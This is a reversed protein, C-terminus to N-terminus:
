PQAPSSRSTRDWEGHWCALSADALAAAGQTARNDLKAPASSPASNSGVFYRGFQPGEGDRPLGGTSGVTLSSREAVNAVGGCGQRQLNPLVLLNSSLEALSGTVNTDPAQININGALGLQSSATVLSDPTAFYQSATIGINGGNGGFAKAQITGHNLVIFQSDIAINGGSGTGGAVSTTIEGQNLYVLRGARISIDGGGGTKAETAVQGDARITLSNADIQVTGASQPGDSIARIGAGAGTVLIDPVQDNPLVVVSGGRGAGTSSSSLQGNAELTIHDAKITVDGAVGAPNSSNADSFIGAGQAVLEKATVDVTGARGQGSTSSSIQGASRLTISDASVSVQGAPGSVGETANSFIGTGNNSGSGDITIASNGGTGIVTVTGARGLGYTSSSIQVNTSLVINGARVIVDGAIGSSGPEANTVIGTSFPTRGAGNAVIENATVDVTGARGLGFTSSSIVGQDLLTIADARVTVAGAAGGPQPLGARTNSFIGTDSDTRGAGNAVIEKATVDVKGAPGLSFTSSSIEGISRLSIRDASVSVQGAAGISGGEANSSIGTGKKSGSGDITIASNGGTGIVTVTGARGLDFTDSSIVGQDLLIISGARVTVAGAAGPGRTNSFIGTDFDTRGAGDAVIKQAAVDVTGARGLGFTSSSIQGTRRLSISGASVAVHGARGFSGSDANSVIGTVGDSGSGDITITSNGGTGTVTVMGAQGLGNTSSSIVGQDLLIISGARVTVTGAAGASTRARTNSFIGTGFDTRGAGDAVIKQATVDVTGAYGMGFTSSSIQGIRLLTISGASVAVHGARGFSGSDANSVIGTVGDSGSGDITITSNGAVTVTNAAGTSGRGADSIIGTIRNSGSGDIFLSPAAGTGGVQVTGADGAGFTSSSILGGARLTVSNATVIVGGANGRSGAQVDSLIGTAQSLNGTGDARIAGTARVDVLGSGGTGYGLSLIQGGARLAINGARVTVPGASGSASALTQSGLRSPATSGTADVVIESAAVQVAGASGPGFTQSIIESGRTVSLGSDAQVSVVGGPLASSNNSAVTSRDVTVAGGRVNIPGGSVITSGSLSIPGYSNVTDKATAATKLKIEGAGATSVVRFQGSPVKIQSATTQVPGGVLSLDKGPITALSSGNLAIIGSKSGLFGFAEPPAATLTSGTPTSAQFRAGDAFRVNDATSVHFSGKVDLSANPGFIWGSPNLLFLNAGPVTSAIKGDVSSTQRGTVRGIINNTGAPGSFTASEGTRVNFTNFSHFLNAGVQEGLDAGIAFNPGALNRAVGMSGDTRIQASAFNDRVGVATFVLLLVTLQRGWLARM